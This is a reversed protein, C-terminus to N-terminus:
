RGPYGYIGVMGALDSNKALADEANKQAITSNHDDAVTDIIQINSGALGNQIGQVRDKTNQANTYGVFVIIKGGQPLAAKILEAAQKGAAVNDTGIYCTRKSEEADSDACVLLTKGALDNLFETQSDADIPSIAIGDVGGAVLDSLLEQQAKATRVAPFRFELDVDGLQRAAYDCGLQVISWYDDATNAVFALRLKKQPEGGATGGNKNDCGAILAVVCLSLILLQIKKM